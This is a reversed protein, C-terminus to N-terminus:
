YYQKHVDNPFTQPFILNSKKQQTSLKNNKALWVMYTPEHTLSRYVFSSVKCGM